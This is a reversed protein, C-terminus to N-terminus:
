LEMQEGEEKAEWQFCSSQHMTPHPPKRGVYGRPFYLNCIGTAYRWESSWEHQKRLSDPVGDTYHKCQDCRRM